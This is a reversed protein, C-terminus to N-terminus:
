NDKGVRGLEETTSQIKGKQAEIEAQKEEQKKLNEEIEKEKQAITEKAKEIDKHLNENQKTLKKLDKEMTSLGKEEFVIQGKINQREAEYAFDQLFEGAGRINEDSSSLFENNM